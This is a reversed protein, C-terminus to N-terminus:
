VRAEGQVPEPAPAPPKGLVEQVVNRLSALTFPKPLLGVEALEASYKMADALNGTMLIFRSALEPRTDRLLQYIEFGNQGPMKLDCLVVDFEGLELASAVTGSDQVTTVRCPLAELGDTILELIGAEDDIVLAHTPKTRPKKEPRPALVPAASKATPKTKPALPVSVRLTSGKGPESEVAISGGHQRIIGYSVSMGLGTGEGAPRTTFFPEFIHNLIEHAMGCGNDRVSFWAKDADEGCALWIDGREHSSKIAQEANLVLNLMVQMLQDADAVVWIPNGPCDMHLTLNNAQLQYDRLDTLRLLVQRLDTPETRHPAHRAFTTLNIILHKLRLAEDRITRLPGLAAPDKNARSLLVESFGLISTLPNNIEHAVGSVLQGLSALKAAQLLEAQTQELKVGREMVREELSDRIERLEGAMELFASVLSGIEIGHPVAGTVALNGRRVEGVMGRLEELPTWLHDQHARRFWVSTLLAFGAFVLLLVILGKSFRARQASLMELGRVQSDELRRVSADAAISLRNVEGLSWDDETPNRRGSILRATLSQFKTEESRLEEVEMWDEQPFPFSVFSDLLRSLNQSHEQFKLQLAADKSFYALWFAHETVEHGAHIQTELSLTSHLHRLSTDLRNQFYQNWFLVTAILLLALAASGTQMMRFRREISYPKPKAFPLPKRQPTQNPNSGSLSM